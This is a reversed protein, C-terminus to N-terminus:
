IRDFTINLKPTINRLYENLKKEFEYQTLNKIEDSSIIESLKFSYGVYHAEIKINDTGNEKLDDFTNM